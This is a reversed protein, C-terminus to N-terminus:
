NNKKSVATNKRLFKQPSRDRRSSVEILELKLASVKAALDKLNNDLTKKAEEDAQLKDNCSKLM